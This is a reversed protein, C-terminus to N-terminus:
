FSWLRIAREVNNVKVVLFDGTATVPSTFTRIDSILNVDVPAINLENVFLASAAIQETASISGIVTLQKNPATTGIGVEGNSTVRLRNTVQHPSGTPKNNETRLDIVGGAGLAIQAAGVLGFNSASQSVWRDTNPTGLASGTNDRYGNVTFALEGDNSTDVQGHNSIGVFTSNQAWYDSPAGVRLNNDIFQSGTVQSDGNVTLTHTPALTNVGVRNTNAEVFLTSVDVTLNGNVAADQTCLSNGNVVFERDPTVTNVGVFRNVSNVTLADSLVNLDDNLETVGTVTLKTGVTVNGTTDLDGTISTNTKALVKSASPNVEFLNSSYFAQTGSINGFVTLTQNPNATGIGVRNATANVFLTNNNVAFNKTVYVNQKFFADGNLTFGQNITINNCTVDRVLTNGQEVALAWVGGKLVMATNPNSFYGTYASLSTHASLSGNLVFTGRFPSDPSAIPDNSSDPYKVDLTPDTHHNHRHFKSHFRTSM